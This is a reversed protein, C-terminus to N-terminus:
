LYQLATQQQHTVLFVIESYSIFTHLSHSVKSRNNFEKSGIKWDKIDNESQLCLPTLVRMRFVAKRKFSLMKQIQGFFPYFHGDLVGLGQLMKALKKLNMCAFTLGVKMELRAKGIMQTYRFGHAEKATEFLREITEKRRDYLKKMGITHRIEDCWELYSEWIHRTVM